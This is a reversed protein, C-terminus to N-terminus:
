YSVKGIFGVGPIYLKCLRCPCENTRWKKIKMSFKSLSIKKWDAPVLTWIKPGLYALTETGNYMPTTRRSLYAKQGPYNPNSNLLFVLEMIKPSLGYYVM